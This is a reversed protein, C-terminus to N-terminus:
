RAKALADLVIQETLLEPLTIPASPKGAPYLVYFPVGVRGFRQLAATIEPNANTWDARLPVIGLERFKARVAPTDIATRENYKCSLCWAATFDVFVPKGEALLKDLASQTFPQWPIGDKSEVSASQALSADPFLKGLFLWGGGLVIALAVLLPLVRRRATPASALGYLWCALALALLFAVAWVIADPGRQQGVIYLLWLLAALLPFGMFQKLREMWAGPKPLFRVWAPQASLLVYPLALGAAMCSFFAMTVAAPQSFAFGLSAGLFPGTCPTALLTAFVGQFFSGAWGEHAGAEGLRTAARGPLVLEFVGFLNLAFVLVIAALALNFWVNQFQFAWTAADGAARLGVIVAGLGLFWAFVGAAFALGHGLIARRSRGAQAVFGFIKLAIVPLVCPMLNLILGGLFGSLLAAWLNEIKSQRGRGEVERLRYDRNEIASPAAATPHVEIAWARTATTSKVALVGALDARSELSITFGEAASGTIKPHGIEQETSAPLPFFEVSQAAPDPHITTQLTDGSRTWALPFPPPGAAPIRASWKAFLDTNAPEASHAVPLELSLAAKGPICLEACVLWAADVSLTVPGSPLQAPPTITQLLMVEGGYAYVQIDGPEVEAQPLPWEIPGATFGPPLQWKLTTPIGADGAYKWYTHWGPAMELVLGVRFPRGPVVATTDAVLRPQVLTQGKYVQAPAAAAFLLLLLAAIHPFKM